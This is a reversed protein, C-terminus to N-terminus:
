QSSVTKTRSNTHTSVNLNSNTNKKDGSSNTSSSINVHTVQGNDSNTVTKNVSGNDPATITQGDVTVSASSQNGVNSSSSNGAAETSAGSLTSSDASDQSLAGGDVDAASVNLNIGNTTATGGSWVLAALPAILFALATASWFAVRKSKSSRFASSFTDAIKSSILDRRMNWQQTKISKLIRM